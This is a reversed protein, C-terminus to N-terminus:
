AGDIRELWVSRWSGIPQFGLERYIHGAAPHKWYLVPTIEDALLSACLVSCVSAALGRGRQAPPTFVGGVMALRPPTQMEANTLAAAGVAGAEDLALYVRGDRLPRETGPRSRTMDGADAYLAALADLDGMTARRVQWGPPVPRAAFDAAELRMLEEVHVNAAKCRRLFPLISAIAGPNDQLREADKDADILAALASWDADTQGYLSWGTFYRNAVGRLSGNAAFDGWFTCFPRDLGLSELNGLLFLNNEPQQRALARLAARDTEGLKRTTM